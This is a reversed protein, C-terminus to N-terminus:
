EIQKLIEEIPDKDENFNKFEMTGKKKIEHDLVAMFEKGEETWLFAPKKEKYKTISDNKFTNYETETKFCIKVEAIHLIEADFVCAQDLGVVTAGSAIALATLAATIKQKTTM